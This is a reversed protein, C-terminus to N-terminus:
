RALEEPLFFHKQVNAVLSGPMEEVIKFIRKVNDFQRRFIDFRRSFWWYFLFFVCVQM